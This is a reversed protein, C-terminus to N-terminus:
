HTHESFHISQTHERTLETLVNLHAYEKLAHEEDALTMSTM